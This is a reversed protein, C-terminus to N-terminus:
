SGFAHPILPCSCFNSKQTFPWKLEIPVWRMLAGQSSLGLYKALALVIWQQKTMLDCRVRKRDWPSYGVLNRQGHSEGPLFVPTPQWKRRWPIKGVRPDFGLRKQRRCQCAYSAMPLWLCVSPLGPPCHHQWLGLCEQLRWLSSSAPLSGDQLRWVSCPGGSGQEKKKKM